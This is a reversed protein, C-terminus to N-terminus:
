CRKVYPELGPYRKAVSNFGSRLTRSISGGTIFYFLLLLTFVMNMVYLWIMQNPGHQKAVFRLLWYVLFFGFGTFVIVPTDCGMFVILYVFFWFVINEIIFFITDIGM